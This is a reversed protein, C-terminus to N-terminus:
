CRYTEKNIYNRVNFKNVLNSITLCAELLVAEHKTYEEETFIAINDVRDTIDWTHHDNIVTKYKLVTTVQTKVVKLNCVRTVTACTSDFIYFVRDKTRPENELDKAAKIAPQFHKLLLPQAPEPYINVLEMILSTILESKKM